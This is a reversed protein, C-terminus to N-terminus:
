RRAEVRDILAELRMLTPCLGALAARLIEAGEGQPAPRPDGPRHLPFDRTM